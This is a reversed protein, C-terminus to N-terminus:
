APSPPAGAAAARDSNRSGPRDSGGPPPAKAEVEQSRKLTACLTLQRVVDRVSDETDRERGTALALALRARDYGTIELKALILRALQYRAILGRVSRPGPRYPVASLRRSAANIADADARTLITEPAPEDAGGEGGEARADPEDPRAARAERASRDDELDDKAVPPMPPDDSGELWDTPQDDDASTEPPPSSEPERVISGTLAEAVEGLEDEGLEPLRLHAIFYKEINEDVLARERHPRDELRSEYKKKLAHELAEEDVLMVVRLRERVADDELLVRLSEIVELMASDPCRDLDDVVLLVARPGRAFYVMWAILVAALGLLVLMPTLAAWPGGFWLARSGFYAATTGAAIAFVGLAATAKWCWALSPEGLVRPRADGRPWAPAPMWGLLLATLDRGVVAQLGLKDDHKALKLYRTKLSRVAADLWGSFRVLAGVAGVGLVVTAIEGTTRTLADGLAIWAALLVVVLTLAAVPWVGHRIAGARAVRTMGLLWWRGKAARAIEEYLHVWLQPTSPYKWASFFLTEYRHRSLRERVLEMLYTKGRGWHGFLGFCLEDEASRIYDTLADAYKEVDIAAEEETSRTRFATAFVRAPEPDAPEPFRRRIWDTILRVLHGDDEYEAFGASGAIEAFGSLDSGQHLILVPLGLEIVRDIEESQVLDVKRGEPLVFIAGDLGPDGAFEGLLALYSNLEFPESGLIEAQYVVRVGLESMGPRTLEALEDSRWVPASFFIAPGTAHSTQETAAPRRDTPRDSESASVSQSEEDGARGSDPASEEQRVESATAEVENLARRAWEAALPGIEAESKYRQFRAPRDTPKGDAFLILVPTGIEEFRELELGLVGSADLEPVVLIAAGIRGGTTAEELVDIWADISVGLAVASLEEYTLSAIGAAGLADRVRPVVRSFHDVPVRPAGIFVAREPGAAM